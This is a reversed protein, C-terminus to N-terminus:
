DVVRLPAGALWGRINAVSQDVIRQRAARSGWASHPTVLLNPIDARLLPQEPGPPEAALVDLGAGGIAGTRLAHALAPEDVLAGRATNILLATPKMRELVDADIMGRTTETLPCHLSVVDAESVAEAFAVRGPRPRREAPREAIDVQMGLAEAKAAVAAGLDGYGVVLLRQGALESIPYDLLCFDPSQSWRGRRVADVYDVLRTRLALMLTIAHQSVSETGYGRCNCVTVGRSRAADLDINNVGTAVVNILRIGPCADLIAADIEVKNAIVIPAADIHELREAPGTRGHGIWGPCLDDLASFDLDGRDLTDRDLFVAAAM